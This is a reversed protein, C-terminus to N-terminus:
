STDVHHNLQWEGPNMSDSPILDSKKLGFPSGTVFDTIATATSSNSVRAIIRANWPTNFPVGICAGDSPTTGVFEPQSTCPSNSPINEARVVFQVPISSLPAIDTPSMFDEVQLAVAYNGTLNSAM